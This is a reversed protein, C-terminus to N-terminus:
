PVGDCIRESLSPDRRLLQACEEPSVNDEGFVVRFIVLLLAATLVVLGVLWSVSRTSTKAAHHTDVTRESRLVNPYPRAASTGERHDPPLVESRVVDGKANVYVRRRARHRPKEFFWGGVVAFPNSALALMLGLGRQLRRLERRSVPDLPVPSLTAWGRGALAVEVNTLTCGRHDITHSGRQAAAPTTQATLRKPQRARRCPFCTNFPDSAAPM